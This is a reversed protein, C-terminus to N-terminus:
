KALEGISRVALPPARKRAGDRGLLVTARREGNVMVPHACHVLVVGLSRGFGFRPEFEVFLLSNEQDFFIM